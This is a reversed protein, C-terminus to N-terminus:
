WSTPKGETYLWVTFFKQLDLGSDREALQIFQPTTVNGFRNETAWDRMIRFFAMDGVKERLAQLTMGGRYYITGNFLLVPTGPDAPAPNWFASDHAPTNYLQEFWQHASKNGEHESWIWESWTAFGEHLWIDPWQTLTVSDGYWQHSLEHALTAENPVYPFVPKTQTELSYGVVKASDVIAGVATVPYAGYISSYFDVIVPLKSLVQGKALQPDIAVYSPIGNALRSETLDFRGLTATALYPAMPDNEQWVWTTKGGSADHSVLVGNAMVTLGEPVTVSFQFTAKDRPNDNVPYWAPSGQPEGVVFAGDATPVWGEISQDPDTVVSPQGRYDVRVTFQSGARIGGAPDVILEQGDRSFSAPRGDVTLRPIDFGRLDLDFSSLNQTATASITATGELNRTAPDYSLVLSYHSVDYGGNGANPFFPDGLGSSGPNFGGGAAAPGALVLISGVLILAAAALL